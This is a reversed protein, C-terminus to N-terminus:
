RIDQGLFSYRKQVLELKEDFRDIPGIEFTYHPRVAGFKGEAADKYKSLRDGKIYVHAYEKNIVSLKEVDGSRLMNEFKGWTISESPANSLSYFNLGLLFLALIGYIWYSNFRPTVPKQDKDEM